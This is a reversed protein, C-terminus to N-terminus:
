LDWASKTPNPEAPTGAEKPKTSTLPSGSNAQTKLGDYKSLAASYPKPSTTYREVDKIPMTVTVQRSLCEFASDLVKMVKDISNHLSKLEGYYSEMDYMHEYRIGNRKEEGREYEIRALLGGFLDMHREWQFYQRNVRLQVQKIRERHRQCEAMKHCVLEANFQEGVSVDVNAEELETYYQDFPLEGGKLLAGVLADRKAQYFTNYKPAPSGLVWPHKTPKGAIMIPASSPSPQQQAKTGLDEAEVTKVPVTPTVNEEVKPEEKAVVTPPNKPAVPAPIPKAAGGNEDDKKPEEKKEVKKTEVDGFIDGFMSTTAQPDAPIASKAAIEVDEKKPPTTVTEKKIQPKEPAKEQAVTAAVSPTGAVAKVIDATVETVKEEFPVLPADKKGGSKNTYAEGNDDDGINSGDQPIGFIDDIFAKDVKSM